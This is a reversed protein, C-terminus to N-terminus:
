PVVDNLRRAEAIVFGVDGNPYRVVHCTEYEYGLDFREPRLAFLQRRGERYEGMGGSDCGDCGDPAYFAFFILPSNFEWDMILDDYEGSVDSFYGVIERPGYQWGWFGVAVDPYDRDYRQVYGALGFASLGVVAIATAAPAALTALGRGASRFRTLESVAYGGVLAMVVPGLITRSSIPSADSLAGPLPYVLLLLLLLAAGKQQVSWSQVSSPALGVWWGKRRLGALRAMMLAAGGLVLVLQFWYLHGSGPLYHRLIEQNDGFRVLFNPSFHSGYNTVLTWVGGIVSDDGSLFSSHGLRGLAKGTVIQEIFPVTALVFAGVAMRFGRPTAGLERRYLWVLAPLVLPVVVWAAAYTYLTAALTVGALMLM